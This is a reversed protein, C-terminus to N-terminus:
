VATVSMPEFGFLIGALLGGMVEERLDRVGTDWQRELECQRETRRVRCDAVCAGLRDTRGLAALLGALDDIYIHREADSVDFLQYVLWRRKMGTVCASAARHIMQYPLEEIDALSLTPQCEARLVDLWGELVERRNSDEEPGLWKRVDDYRPETSKAEITASVSGWTVLLDTCSPKGEGRQVPLEHEFDLVVSDGVRVGLKEALEAVGREADRWYALLPVTSRRPSKFEKQGYKQLLSEFGNILRSAYM